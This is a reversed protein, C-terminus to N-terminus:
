GSLGLTPAAALLSSTPLPRMQVPHQQTQVPHLPRVGWGNNKKQPQNGQQGQNPNGKRKNNGKQKNGQAQNSGQGKQQNSMNPKNQNRHMYENISGDDVLIDDLCMRQSYGYAM